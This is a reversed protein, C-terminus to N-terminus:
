LNYVCRVFGSDESCRNKPLTVFNVDSLCFSSTYQFCIPTSPWCGNISGSCWGAFAVGCKLLSRLEGKSRRNGYSNLSAILFFPFLLPVNPTRALYTTLLRPFPIRLVTDMLRNRYQRPPDISLKRIQKERENDASAQWNCSFKGENTQYAYATSVSYIYRPTTDHM